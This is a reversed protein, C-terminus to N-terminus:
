RSSIGRKCCLIINWTWPYKTPEPIAVEKLIQTIPIQFKTNQSLQNTRFNTEMIKCSRKLNSNNPPSPAPFTQPHSLLHIWARLFIFAFIFEIGVALAEQPSFPFFSLNQLLWQQLQSYDVYIFYWKDYEQITLYRKRHVKM